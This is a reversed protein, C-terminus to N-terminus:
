IICMFVYRTSATGSFTFGNSTPAGYDVSTQPANNNNMILATDNGSGWGTETSLILWDDANDTDKFIGFRPQFGIGTHTYNGNVDTDFVGCYIGKSPNHAWVFMVYDVGTANGPLKTGGYDFNRMYIATDPPGSNYMSGAVDGFWNSDWAINANPRLTIDARAEDAGLAASMLVWDHDDNADNRQKIIAWGWDAGLGHNVYGAAGAGSYKVCKFFGDTNKFSYTVIPTGTYATSAWNIGTGSPFDILAGSTFEEDREALDTSLGTKLHRVNSWGSGPSGQNYTWWATGTGNTDKSIVLGGDTSMALGNDLIGTSSLSDMSFATDIFPIRTVGLGLLTQTTLRTLKPM